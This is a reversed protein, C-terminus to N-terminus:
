FAFYILQYSFYNVIKTKYKYNDLFFVSESHVSKPAFYHLEKSAMGKFIKIPSTFINFNKKISKM